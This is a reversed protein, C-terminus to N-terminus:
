PIIICPEEKCLWKKSGNAPSYCASKRELDKERKVQTSYSSKPDDLLACSIEEPVVCEKFADTIGRATSFVNRNFRIYRDHPHEENPLLHVTIKKIGRVPPSDLLDNRIRKIEQEAKNTNKQALSSFITLHCNVSDRDLHKIFARVGAINNSRVAYKDIIVIESSYEALRQFREDWISRSISDEPIAAQSIEHANAFAHSRDAIDLRIPEVDGCIHRIDESIPEHTIGLQGALKDNVVALEFKDSWKALQSIDDDLSAWNVSNNGASLLSSSRFKPVTTSRLSSQKIAGQLKDRINPDFSSSNAHIAARIEDINVLVGHFHWKEILSTFTFPMDRKQLSNPDISFKVLM